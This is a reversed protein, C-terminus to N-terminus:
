NYIAHVRERQAGEREGNTVAARVCMSVCVRLRGAVGCAGRHTQTHASSPTSRMSQTDIGGSVERCDARTRCLM